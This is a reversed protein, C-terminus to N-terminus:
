KLYKEFWAYVEQWWFKANQPKQVFHDEDPFVILKSDVGMKQLATFFQLSQTYPVRYDHEGCIVLCPTNFNRVYYSPSYKEYLAPSTYPTGNFEWEPFWLEETAGYMSRQDFVGAHSILCKFLGDPNHGEIWDIMFGGYSAGAAGIKDKNIFNFRALTEKTAKIIDEYPAGGWNKSVADCFKQGYGRSGHFNPAIVVYGPAAFMEMNWRYHFDDGFAGQPGGHILVVLPYKKTPDFFPPKLMLVHVSDGNAGSIWFEELPPMELEKILSDNFHTLQQWTASQIQFSYLETPKNVAQRQIILSKGDPTITFAGMYMGDILLTLRGKLDVSYLRHRGHFPSTFYLRKSDPAWIFHSITLDLSSTLNTIEGSKLNKLLLDYQDAEFGPRKMARYALYKGNPSLLPNNDNAKNDITFNMEENKELDLVFIDNNTNTAPQATKNAVYYIYKGKKDM